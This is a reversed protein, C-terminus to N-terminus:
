LAKPVHFIGRPAPSAPQSVSAASAPMALPEAPALPVAVPVFVPLRACCVCYACNQPCPDDGASRTDEVCEDPVVGALLETTQLVFLALWFALLVRAM